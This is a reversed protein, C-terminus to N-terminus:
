NLLHKTHRLKSASSTLTQLPPTRPTTPSYLSCWHSPSSASVVLEPTQGACTHVSSAPNDSAQRVVRDDGSTSDAQSSPESGCSSREEDQQLPPHTLFSPVVSGCCECQTVIAVRPRTPILIAQWTNQKPRDTMLEINNLENSQKLISSKRLSSCRQPSSSVIM